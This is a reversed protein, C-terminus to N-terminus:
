EALTCRHCLFTQNLSSCHSHLASSWCLVSHTCVQALKRKMAKRFHFPGYNNITVLIYYQNNCLVEAGIVSYLRLENSYTVFEEVVNPSWLVQLGVGHGGAAM